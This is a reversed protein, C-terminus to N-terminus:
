TRRWFPERERQKALIAPDFPPLEHGLPQPPRAPYGMSAELQKLVRHHVYYGRYTHNVLAAFFAPEAAEVRRLAADQDEGGLGLFAGGAAVEIRVLGDFFLRRLSPTEGLTRDIADAVGLGGAGPLDGNPPVIRDLVATLLAKRAPDLVPRLAARPPAGRAAAPPQLGAVIPASASPQEASSQDESRDIM